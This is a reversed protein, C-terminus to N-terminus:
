AKMDEKMSISERGEEEDIAKHNKKLDKKGAKSNQFGDNGKHVVNFPLYLYIFFIHPLHKCNQEPSDARTKLSYTFFLKSTIRRRDGKWISVLVRLMWKVVRLMRMERELARGIAGGLVIM